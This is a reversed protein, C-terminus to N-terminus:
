AHDGRGPSMHSMQVMVESLRQALHHPLTSPVVRRPTSDSIHQPEREALHGVRHDLDIM